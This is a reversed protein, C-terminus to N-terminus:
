AHSRVWDRAARQLRKVNVPHIGLKLLADEPARAVKEPDTFQARVLRDADETIVNLQLMLAKERSKDHGNGTHAESPGVPQAANCADIVKQRDAAAICSLSATPPGAANVWAESAEPKLTAFKTLIERPITVDGGHREQCQTLAARVEDLTPGEASLEAPEATKSEVTKAQPDDSPSLPPPEQTPPSESSPSSSASEPQDEPADTSRVEVVQWLGTGTRDDAPKQLRLGVGLRNRKSRLYTGLKDTTVMREKSDYAVLRVARRLEAQEASEEEASPEVIDKARILRDRYVGWWARLFVIYKSQESDERLLKEQSLLPDPEGLWVLPEQVLRRWDPYGALPIVPVREGSRQYAMVITFCCALLRARNQLVYGHFNERKYLRREPHESQPDLYVCLSRRYLDTDVTINVGNVLTLQTNQVERSDSKGLERPDRSPGTNAQALVRSVLSFGDPLNDIFLTARGKRQATDIGKDLEERGRDANLPAPVRGTLFLGATECLTTGGAGNTPKDVVFIPACPLSPRLAASILLALAVAGDLGTAFRFEALLDKLEALCAAAADRTCTEPAISLEPTAMWLRLTSNFGRGSYLQGQHLVPVQAVARITIDSLKNTSAVVTEAVRRPCDTPILEGEPSRRLFGLISHIRPVIAADNLQFLELEQTKEGAATVAERETPCVVRGDFVMLQAKPGNARIAEMVPTFLDSVATTAAYVLTRRDSGESGATNRKGHSGRRHLDYESRVTKKSPKGPLRKRLEALLHERQTPDISDHHRAIRRYFADKVAKDYEEGGTELDNLIREYETAAEPLCARVDALLSACQAEDLKLLDATSSCGYKALLTQREADVEAIAKKESFRVDTLEALASAVDRVHQPTADSASV